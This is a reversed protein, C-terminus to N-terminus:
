GLSCVSEAACSVLLLVYACGSMIVQNLWVHAHVLHVSHWACGSGYSPLFPRVQKGRLFDKEARGPLACAQLLILCQMLFHRRFDPNALQVRMLRSSSLYQVTLAVHGQDEAGGQLGSQKHHSTTSLSSKRFEALVKLISEQAQSVALFPTLPRNPM